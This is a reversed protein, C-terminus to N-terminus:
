VKLSRELEAIDKHAQKSSVKFIQSYCRVAANKNGEKLLRRVDFMTPNTVLTQKVKKPQGHNRVILWYIGCFLLFCLVTIAISLFQNM